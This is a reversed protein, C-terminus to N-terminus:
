CVLYNLNLMGMPTTIAMLKYLTEQKDSPEGQLRWFVDRFRAPVNPQVGELCCLCHTMGECPPLDLDGGRAFRFPEHLDRLYKVCQPTLGDDAPDFTALYRRDFTWYDAALLLLL